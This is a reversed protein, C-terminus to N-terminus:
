WLVHICVGGYDVLFLQIKLVKPAALALIFAAYAVAFVIVPFFCSGCSNYIGKVESGFFDTDMISEISLM